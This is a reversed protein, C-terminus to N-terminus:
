LPLGDFPDCHTPLGFAEPYRPGLFFLGDASFTPSAASRSRAALVENLWEPQQRGIGIDVLCGVINRIMHHLFANAEFDLRVYAGRTKLRIPELTKIPTHSQCQSARFSSFDHTGTLCSAAARMADVDVSHHIWGVRARDITPRVRGAYLIYAYRRTLASARAHFERPVFHAWQIAIDRPLYRNTGRVWSLPDRTIPTDFHVVQMLGHVGADTRGACLTSPKPGTAFSQLATELQDQVTNGDAQSQWGNYARGDYSVGLAVRQLAPAGPIAAEVTM